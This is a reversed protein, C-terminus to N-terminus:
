PHRVHKNPRARCLALRCSSTPPWPAWLGAVPAWAAAPQCSRGVPADGRVVRLPPLRRDDLSVTLPAFTRPPLAPCCQSVVPDNRSRRAWRHPGVTWQPRQRAWEAKRIEVAVTSEDAGNRDATTAATEFD